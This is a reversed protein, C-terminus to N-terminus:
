LDVFYNLQCSDLCMNSSEGAAASRCGTLRDSFSDVLSRNASPARGELQLGVLRGLCPSAAAASGMEHATGGVEKLLRSSPSSLRTM